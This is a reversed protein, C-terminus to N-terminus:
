AGDRARFTVPATALMKALKIRRRIPFRDFILTEAPSWLTVWGIIILSESIITALRGQGLLYIAESLVICFAVACLACILAAGGRRKLQRLENHADRAQQSFYGHIASRIEDTRGLDHRSIELEVAVGKEGHAAEVESVLARAFDPHLDPGTFLAHAENLIRGASCISLRVAPLAPGPRHAPDADARAPSPASAPPPNQQSM